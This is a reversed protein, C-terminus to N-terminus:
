DFDEEEASHRMYLAVNGTVFSVVFLITSVLVTKDILKFAELSVGNYFVGTFYMYINSVYSLLAVFVFIWLALPAYNSTPEFILLGFFLVIGILAITMVNSSNYELLVGTFGFTYSFVAALLTVVSALSFYFGIRKFFEFNFIGM